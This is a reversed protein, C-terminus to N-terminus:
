PGNGLDVVFVYSPKRMGIREYFRHAAEREFRSSLRLQSCGAARAAAEAHRMLAAGIGRGRVAEDTVLDDVYLSRGRALDDLLRWGIAGVPKGGQWAAHMEYGQAQARRCLALYSAEDLHTRLQRMVPFVARLSEEDRCPRIDPVADTM